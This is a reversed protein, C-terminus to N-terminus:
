IAYRKLEGQESHIIFDTTEHRLRCKLIESAILDKTQQSMEKSKSFYLFMKKSKCEFVGITYTNEQLSPAAWKCSIDTQWVSCVKMDTMAKGRFSVRTTKAVRFADCLKFCKKFMVPKVKKADFPRNGVGSKVLAELRRDHCYFIDLLRNVYEGKTM